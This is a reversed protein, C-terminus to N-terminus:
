CYLKTKLIMFVNGIYDNQGFYAKKEAWSDAPRYQPRKVPENTKLRPLHGLIFCLGKM